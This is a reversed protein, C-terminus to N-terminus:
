PAMELRGPEGDDRGVMERVWSVVARIGRRLALDEVGSLRLLGVIEEDHYRYRPPLRLVAVTRGGADRLRVIPCVLGRALHYSGPPLDVTRRPLVLWPRYSFRIGEAGASVRGYTRNPAGGLRQAVFARFKAPEPRVRRHRFAVLDAAMVGGFVMLRFSWAALPISVLM